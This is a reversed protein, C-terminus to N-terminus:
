EEVVLDNSASIAAGVADTTNDVRRLGQFVSRGASTGAHLLETDDDYALATVADSTGYLTAKANEQFLHKEDNYMKKIQEATPVTASIRFLALNVNTGISSSSGNFRRSLVLPASDLQTVNRATATTSVKNVGNVWIEHSTGRRICWCQVWEDEGFIALTESVDNSDGNTFLNLTGGAAATIYIAIRRTGDVSRDMVYQTSNGTFKLWFGITFDGTGFDLDSDYSRQLYNNTSFGSYGVLDAGTAVATKTVTGFVQLGNRNVSRDEEALRVSINDFTATNGIGTTSVGLQIATSTYRAEFTLSHVGATGLGINFHVNDVHAFNAGSVGEYSFVYTKGVETTVTTDLRTRDAVTNTLVLQGNTSAATGNSNVTWGNVNSDFTGNTILESGTVNTDDTDSLTALKIDGVMWGTNHSSTINSQLAHRETVGNVNWSTIGASGLAHYFKYNDAGLVKGGNGYLYPYFGTAQNGNFRFAGKTYNVVNETDTWKIVSYDDGNSKTVYYEDGVADITIYAAGSKNIVSGDDKIVSVGGNTAAAITPVPLGTDPDIPANPLVTIAVDNITRDIINPVNGFIWSDADAREYGINRESINGFYTGSISGTSHSWGSDKLFDVVYLDYPNCGLVIRANLMAVSSNSSEGLMNGYGSHSFVMWMPMAPDDGDYITLQASEAVIVAVSPFKKTAGRTSTNLTENYWSTHQTRHRWAGGDSDKSTDYVFVDVATDSITASIADLDVANAKATGSLHLDKFRGGSAGLDIAADRTALSGSTGNFPLILDNDANFRLGTDGEAIYVDGAYAGISGVPAGAKNIEIVDGDTGGRNLRLSPASAVSSTFQGGAEIQVGASGFDDASSKGVLLNGSADIRARETLSSGTKFVLKRNAGVTLDASTGGNAFIDNNGNRSLHIEAGSTNLSLNGLSGAVTVGGVNATGSLYLDKFRNGSAGIDGANDTTPYIVSSTGFRLTTTASPNGNIELGGVQVGISGVTAGSRTFSILSGDNGTRNIFAPTQQYASIAMWGAPNVQFGNDATSNASNNYVTTDTTGVLLNGSTDIRMREAINTSIAFTGSAPSYISPTIGGASGANDALRVNNVHVTGDQRLTVADSANASTSGVTLNGSPDIRMRESGQMEFTLAATNRTDLAITNSAGKIQILDSDAGRFEAIVGDAGLEVDLKGSPNDTGIGVNGSSNIRMRETNNTGFGIIGNTRNYIFADVGDKVLAFGANGTDTNDLLIAEVGNATTGKINIGTRSGAFAPSSTGIGVNGSSDISLPTTSSGIDQFNLNGGTLQFGWYNSADRQM